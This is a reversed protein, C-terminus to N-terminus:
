RVIFPLYIDSDGEVPEEGFFAINSSAVGDFQSFWGGVVITGDSLQLMANVQGYRSGKAGAGISQWGSTRSYSAINEAFTVDSPDYYTYTHITFFHGGILVQDSQSDFLFSRVAKNSSNYAYGLEGDGLQSWTTGDYTAMQFDGSYSYLQFDGGAYYLGDVFDSSYITGSVAWEQGNLHTWSSGDWVCAISEGAAYVQNLDDVVLTYGTKQSSSAFLGTGLAEWDSGTWHAISNVDVATGAQDFQGAAYLEGASDIVLAYVTDDMGTNMASWTAGDWMAINAASTEGASDFDGGVILNGSDDLALTYVYGDIGDALPSWSTGDWSAINNVPIDGAYSFIGGAYLTESVEDYALAHVTGNLGKGYGGDLATWDMGDWKAIKNAIATGAENFLGGALLDGANTIFLDNIHGSIGNGLAEWSGSANNWFAIGNVSTSGATDFTGGVYTGSSSSAVADASYDGSTHSLGTGLADWTNSGLYAAINNVEVGNAHTFNGVVFVDGNPDISLDDLYTIPAGDSAGSFPSYATCTSGDWISFQPLQYDVFYVTDSQDITLGTEGGCPLSSWSSGDWVKSFDYGSAYVHDDSDIDINRIEHFIEIWSLAQWNNGDWVAINYATSGGAEIFRGGVYVNDNSDIAIANIYEPIVHITVSDEFFLGGTVGGGVDQWASGDWMAINNVAVDGAAHFEGAVYVNGQSDQGIANITSGSIDGLHFGSSTADGRDVSVRKEDPASKRGDAWVPLVLMLSFLLVISVIIIKQFCRNKTM